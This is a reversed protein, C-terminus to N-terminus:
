SGGDGGGGDGGGDSGGDGGGADFADAMGGIADFVSGWEIGSLLDASELWAARREEAEVDLSALMGGAIGADTAEALAPLHPRLGEAILVLGGLKLAAAAASPPDREVLEAIEDAVRMDAAIGDRLREGAATHRHRKLKFIRLRTYEEVELLGRDVLPARVHRTLYRGYDFGFAGQLRQAMSTPDLPKPPKGPPFVADLVVALHAPLPAVAAGRVIQNGGTGLWSRRSRAEVRLYGAAALHLLSTRVLSGPRVKHPDLLLQAETPTLESM